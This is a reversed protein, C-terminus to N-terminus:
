LNAFEADFEKQSVVGQRLRKAMKEERALEAWDDSNDGATNSAEERQRKGTVQEEVAKVSAAEQTKQWKKKLKRKDRRKGREEEKSAKVSWAANKKIKQIHESNRREREGAEKAAAAESLVALRKAEQAQNAYAFDDWSIDTDKWPDRNATKLEPMKPLRLLGFSKAVGVLDLDKVRFIYSAEHKSYARIFSVFAKMSQDHLARDTSLISRIKALFVEVEPDDPGESLGEDGEVQPVACQLQEEGGATFYPRKKLPIKRISLFDVFDVERGSLLVWATGARGARATRGCRHSFTKTDTPPDFQIVVDVSPLDLGRAAVDTALLFSPANATPPASAFAALTRTRASPTLNGHLSHFTAKSHTLSPLIEHSIIRALQILKESPRCTVYYNQLNAPTRREEIVEGKPGDLGGGLKSRKSQVKVTIRAPNRLGVRVLESLADADTMTASFLGTRRQKPLHTIIRSLAAQFGLDLLRDAEDLVLVELGKVNVTSRGQGLLFEEIRGPTGIVIDAGTSVFRQIDQAPSSQESSVLLLPSPFASTDDPQSALFLQFISHIQTALERTPSVILAGIEEHRLKTERRILRELIPIVFALTKGSGTVAEVVVDKHKMFLPITSAQVPTMQTHGMSQIVDLVWATLPTPLSTWLGAFATSASMGIFGFITQLHLYGLFAMDKSAADPDVTTNEPVQDLEDTPFYSTDTISRLHPVFPADIHRITDWDVGYFFHHKKIQEVTLRKDQWTILRRILDEAERSLHVDGPLALYQQWQMIKQYTEHTNESCFPPYGVLCEFMIAGLSWWDCEKGYGNQSFIEPAIYDPTGVTSYALKRRNAKWTAIQDKNTMTLNISNVMVSNRSAQAATPPANNGSELLRAYYSSDHQKHFGTSLGFDSLKVHGDKDILINDPKIDRHIFGLNHVAEIALVCEALYFRTVDESFTDYKILMTMLDGGPLFEMILYLHSADQFSYFLQVVWPSNSEALVDREARVHALQDKKLMEDKKLLKMAYIKGTDAKQVLRVEGFAGKGIVKVTRFDDLGLKTRKMRLFTSEKKGLQQLQRNKREESMLSETQLRRELEVRRTNREIASDVAVKYYHELKLQASQAKTMAGETFGSLNRDFYVYDSSKSAGNSSPAGKGQVQSQRQAYQQQSNSNSASM